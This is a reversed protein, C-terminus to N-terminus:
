KLHCFSHLICDWHLFYEWGQVKSSHTSPSTLLLSTSWRRRPRWEEILLTPCRSLFINLFRDASLCIYIFGYVLSSLCSSSFHIRTEHKAPQSLFFFFFLPRLPWGKWAYRSATHLSSWLTPFRRCPCTQGKLPSCRQNPKLIYILNFSVSVCLWCNKNNNNYFIM